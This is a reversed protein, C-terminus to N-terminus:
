HYSFAEVSKFYVWSCGRRAVVILDIRGAELTIKINGTYKTFISDKIISEALQVAVLDRDSNM